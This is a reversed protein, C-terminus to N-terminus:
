GWRTLPGLGQGGHRFGDEGPLSSTSLPQRQTLLARPRVSLPPGVPPGGGRWADGRGELPPKGPEAHAEASQGVAGPFRPGPTRGDPGPGDGQRERWSSPAWPPPRPVAPTWLGGNM